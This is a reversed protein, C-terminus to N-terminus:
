SSCDRSLWRHLVDVAHAMSKYRRFRYSNADAESETIPELVMLYLAQMARDKMTPIGLPKTKGNAKPISGRILPLAKYGRRTLSRMAEIKRVDTDWKVHYVGVTRKGKNSTVERVVLAKAEYSTALLHQLAKM